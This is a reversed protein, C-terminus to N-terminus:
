RGLMVNVCVMKKLLMSAEKIPGSLDNKTSILVSNKSVCKQILQFDSVSFPLNSNIADNKMAAAYAKSFPKMYERHELVFSGGAVRSEEVTESCSERLSAAFLAHAPNDVIKRKDRNEHNYSLYRLYSKTWPCEFSKQTPRTLLTSDFEFLSNNGNSM